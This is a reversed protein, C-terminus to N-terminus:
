LSKENITVRWKIIFRKITINGDEELCGKRALNGM